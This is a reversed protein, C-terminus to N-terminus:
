NKWPNEEKPRPEMKAPIGLEFHIKGQDNLMDRQIGAKERSFLVPRNSASRCLFRIIMSAAEGM